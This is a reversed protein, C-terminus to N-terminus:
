YKVNGGIFGVKKTRRRWEQENQGAACFFSFLVARSVVLAFLVVVVM